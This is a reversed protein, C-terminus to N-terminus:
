AIEFNIMEKGKKDINIYQLNPFGVVAACCPGPDHRNESSLIKKGPGLFRVDSFYEYTGLNRCQYFIYIAM